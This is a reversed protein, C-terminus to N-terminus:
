GAYITADLDSAHEDNALRIFYLSAWNNIIRTIKIKKFQFVFIFFRM